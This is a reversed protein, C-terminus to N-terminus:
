QQAGEWHWKTSKKTLNLLPQALQSYGKIFYQYYGTFGLFRQVETVNRPPRWTKVREVKAEEMKISKGGIRVGLYDVKRKEFQCKNINLYLNNKQLITLMERVLQRHRQLHQDETESDERKTHMAIDDM